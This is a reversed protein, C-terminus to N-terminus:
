YAASVVTSKFILLGTLTGPIFGGLFLSIFFWGPFMYRMVASVAWEDAFPGELVSKTAPELINGFAFIVTSVGISFLAEGYRKHVLRVLGLILPVILGGVISQVWPNDL